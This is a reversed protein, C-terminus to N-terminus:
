GFDYMSLWKRTLLIFSQKPNILLWMEGSNTPSSNICKCDSKEFAKRANDVYNYMNCGVHWM